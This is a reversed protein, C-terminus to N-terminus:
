EGDFNSKLLRLNENAEDIDFTKPNFRGGNADIIEEREITRPGRLVRLMHVYGSPGGCDEPPCANAGATCLPYIKGVHTSVEKEIALHHEWNDGFDYVYGFEDGIDFMDCLAGSPDDNFEYLHFNEWGMAAQIIPHLERLTVNPYIDIRRWVIPRVDLLTIKIRWLKAVPEANKDKTNTVNRRKIRPNQLSADYMEQWMEPYDKKFQRELMDAMEATSYILEVEDSGQSPLPDRFLPVVNTHLTDNPAIHASSSRSAVPLPLPSQKTAATLTVGQTQMWQTMLTLPADGTSEIYRLANDTNKWKVWDMLEKLGGGHRTFETAFGRRLSHSSFGEIETHDLGTSRLANQMMLFVSNVHLGSEGIRGWRDISRFVPGKDIGAADIWDRYAAVPCYLPLAPLQWTLGGAARDGKSSPLFVSLGHREGMPTLSCHASDLRVLEDARMGCWFGVLFFARARIAQLAMQRAERPDNSAGGEARILSEWHQVCEVLLAMTLPRAQQTPRNNEVRIGRMLIKIGDSKTPDPWQAERHYKALSALRRRLTSPSLIKSYQTLYDEIFGPTTPLTGGFGHEFHRIDDRYARESHRSKGASKLRKTEADLQARSLRMESDDTENDDVAM